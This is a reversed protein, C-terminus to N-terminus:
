MIMGSDKQYNEKLALERQAIELEKKCDLLEKNLREMPTPPNLNM